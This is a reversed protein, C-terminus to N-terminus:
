IFIHSVGADVLKNFTEPTLLDGNSNFTIYAHPLKQRAERVREVFNPDLMPEGYGHLALKGAFEDEALQDIIRTFLEPDMSNAGRKERLEANSLPCYECRRNCCSTTEIAINSFARPRGEVLAKFEYMLAQGAWFLRPPLKERVLKRAENYLVSDRGLLQSAKDEIQRGLERLM